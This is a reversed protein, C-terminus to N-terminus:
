AAEDPSDAPKDDGSTLGYHPLPELGLQARAAAVLNMLHFRTPLHEALLEPAIVVAPSVSVGVVRGFDFRKNKTPPGGWYSTYSGWGGEIWCAFVPTNPRAQLIQWVGRGFRRLPQDETRRLYGEPFIVLCEGRDLAAIAARIEPTDKKLAKESVPIVGFSVMLRRLVPLNYFRSTMMPTVARPIVKALFLPDFWCAHNAIIICAGSDPFRILGQGRGYIRYHLWVIPELTLEFTPRFLRLWVWGFVIM